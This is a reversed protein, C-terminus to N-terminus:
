LFPGQWGPCLAPGRRAEIWRLMATTSQLTEHKKAEKWTGNKAAM